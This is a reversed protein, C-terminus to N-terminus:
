SLRCTSQLNFPGLQCNPFVHIRSWGLIRRAVRLGVDGLQETGHLDRQNQSAVVSCAWLFHAPKRPSKQPAAGKQSWLLGSKGLVAPAARKQRRCRGLPFIVCPRGLRPSDSPLTLHTDFYPTRLIPSRTSNDFHSEELFCVGWLTRTAQFPFLGLGRIATYGKDLLWPLQCFPKLLSCDEQFPGKDVDITRSFLTYTM